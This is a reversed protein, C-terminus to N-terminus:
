GPEDPNKWIGGGYRRNTEANAVTFDRIDGARSTPKLSQITQQSRSTLEENTIGLAEAISRRPQQTRGSATSHGM